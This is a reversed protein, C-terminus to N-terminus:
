LGSAPYEADAGVLNDVDHNEMDNPDDVVHHLTVLVKPLYQSCSRSSDLIESYVLPRDVSAWERRM